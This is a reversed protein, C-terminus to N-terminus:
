FRAQILPLLEAVDGTAASLRCVHVPVICKLLSFPAGTPVALASNRHVAENDRGPHAFRTQLLTARCAPRHKNTTNAVELWLAEHDHVPSPLLDYLTLGILEVESPELPIRV